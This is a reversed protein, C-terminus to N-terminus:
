IAAPRPGPPGAGAARTATPITYREAVIRGMRTLLRGREAADLRDWAGDRAARAAAVAADIDAAGGRAIEALRSGDSPNELPLTERSEAERWVGGILVRTTDFGIAM